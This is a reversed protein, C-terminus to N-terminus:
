IFSYSAVSWVELNLLTLDLRFTHKGEVLRLRNRVIIVDFNSWCSKSLPWNIWNCIHYGNHLIMLKKKHTWVELRRLTNKDLTLWTERLILLGSIIWQDGLKAFGSFDGFDLKDCFWWLIYSRTTLVMWFWGWESWLTLCQDIM